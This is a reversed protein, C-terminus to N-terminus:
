RNRMRKARARNIADIIKQNRQSERRARWREILLMPSLLKVAKMISELDM